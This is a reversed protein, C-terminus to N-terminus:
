DNTHQGSSGLGQIHIEQEQQDVMGIQANQEGLFQRGQVWFSPHESSEQIREKQEVVALSVLSPRPKERLGSIFEKKAKERGEAKRM